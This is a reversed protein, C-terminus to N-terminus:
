LDALFTLSDWKGNITATGGTSHAWVNIADNKYLKLVKCGGFTGYYTAHYGAVISNNYERPKYQLTSDKSIVMSVFGAPANIRYSPQWIYYGNKPITFRSIIVPDTGFSAAVDTKTGETVCPKSDDKLTHQLLYNITDEHM